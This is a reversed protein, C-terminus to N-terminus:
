RKTVFLTKDELRFTLGAQQVTAQLLQRLTADRVQFSIRQRKQDPSVDGWKLDLALQQTLSLLVGELPQNLVNLTYRKSGPVSLVRRPTQGRLWASVAEHDEVRGKVVLQRDDLQYSVDQLIEKLEDMRERQANSLTFSRTFNVEDPIKVVRGSGDRNVSVTLDFGALAITLRQLLTLPPLQQEPWLDHPIRDLGHIVIGSESVWQAALERPETLRPWETPILKQWRLRVAGPLLHVRRRNLQLLTALKRTTEPPGLYVVPSLFSVGWGRGRALERLGHEFSTDKLRLTITQDPDLRRDVFVAIRHAKSLRELSARTPANVWTVEIPTQLQQRFKGQPVFEQTQAVSALLGLDLAFALSPTLLWTLSCGARIISVFRQLFRM